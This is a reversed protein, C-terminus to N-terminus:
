PRFRVLKGTEPNIALLYGKGKAVWIYEGDWLLDNVGADVVVRWVVEGRESDIAMVTGDRWNVVWVYEGDWVLDTIREGVEIVQVVQWQEPDIAMVTNDENNVVWVYKGDWVRDGLFIGTSWVIEGREPDIVKSSGDMKSTVWVYKGNHGYKGYTGNYLCGILVLFKPFATEIQDKRIDALLKYDVFRM